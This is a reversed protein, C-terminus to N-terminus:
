NNDDCDCYGETDIINKKKRKHINTNKPKGGLYLSETLAM